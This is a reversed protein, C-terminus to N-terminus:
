ARKRVLNERAIPRPRTLLPYPKPRRKVARPEFRDPRHGVVHSAIAELLYIRWQQRKRPSANLMQPAFADITQLAGKFSIKLPETDHQIASQAIVGRILNYVLLHAWIEKRVMDPTKCRLIDMQMIPKLSRLNLEAHWRKRYLDAIEQKSALSLSIINTVLWVSETRFGKQTVETKIERLTLYNPLREHISRPFGPPCQKPKFIQVLRDGKGLRKGKRFDDDRSGHQHFVIDVGAEFFLCMDCYGVFHRDALILDGLSLVNDWIEWLLGKESEGGRFKGIALDLAAGTALSFVVVIRALPFGLGKKQARQQPYEAQNKPTDPMSVMSGDIVKVNRGKWLWEKSTQEHIKRGSWRLLEPLVTEPLRKRAKCYAGTNTSCKPLGRSVRYALVRAVAKRCSHDEDLVQTLFAWLTVIPSFVRDRYEAREEQIIGQVFRTDLINAFAFGKVLVFQDRILQFQKTIQKRRHGFPRDM